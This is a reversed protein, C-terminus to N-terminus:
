CIPIRPLPLTYLEKWGYTKIVKKTLLSGHWGWEASLSNWQVQSREWHQTLFPQKFDQLAFPAETGRAM